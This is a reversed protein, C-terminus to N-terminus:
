EIEWTITVVDGLSIDDPNVDLDITGNCECECLLNQTFRRSFPNINIDLEDFSYNISGINVLKVGTSEEIIKAKKFADDVASKLLKNKAGEVDKFSYNIEINTDNYSNNLSSNNQIEYNLPYFDDQFINREEVSITEENNNINNDNNDM